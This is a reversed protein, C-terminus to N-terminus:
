TTHTPEGRNLMVPRRGDRYTAVVHGTVLTLAGYRLDHRRPGGSDFVRLRRWPGPSTMASGGPGHSRRTAPTGFSM